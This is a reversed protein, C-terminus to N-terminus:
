HFNQTSDGTHWQLQSFSKVCVVDGNANAFSFKEIAHKILYLSFQIFLFYKTNWDGKEQFGTFLAHVPSFFDNYILKSIAMAGLTLV